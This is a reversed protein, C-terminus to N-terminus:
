RVVALTCHQSLWDDIGSEVGAEFHEGVSAPCDAVWAPPECEGSWGANYGAEFASLRLAQLSEPSM